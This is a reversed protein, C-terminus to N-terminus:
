YPLDQAVSAGEALPDFPPFHSQLALSRLASFENLHANIMM